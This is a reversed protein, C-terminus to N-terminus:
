NGLPLTGIRIAKKAKERNWDIKGDNEEELKEM